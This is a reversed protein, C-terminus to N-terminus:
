IMNMVSKKEGFYTNPKATGKVLLLLSQLFPPSIGNASFATYFITPFIMRSLFSHLFHHPFDNKQSFHTCFWKQQAFIFMNQSKKMSWNSNALTTVYLAGTTSNSLTFIISFRHVFL